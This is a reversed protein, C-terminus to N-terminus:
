CLCWYCYWIWLWLIIPTVIVSWLVNSVWSILIVFHRIELCSVHESFVFGQDILATAELGSLVAEWETELCKFAPWCWETVHCWPLLSNYYIVHCYCYLWLSWLILQLKWPFYSESLCSHDLWLALSWTALDSWTATEWFTDRTSIEVEFLVSVHRAFKDLHDHFYVVSATLDIDVPDVYRYVVCYRHSWLTMRCRVVLCYIMFLYVSHSCSLCSLYLIYIFNPFRSYLITM